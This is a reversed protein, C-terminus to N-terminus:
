PRGRSQISVKGRSPPFSQADGGGQYVRGTITDPRGGGRKDPHLRPEDGSPRAEGREEFSGPSWGPLRPPPRDSTGKEPRTVVGPEVGALPTPALSPSVRVSGRYSDGDRPAENACRNGSGSRGSRWTRRGCAVSSTSSAGRRRKGARSCCFASGRRGGRCT